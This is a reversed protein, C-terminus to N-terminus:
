IINGFIHLFIFNYHFLNFPSSRMDHKEVRLVICLKGRDGLCNLFFLTEIIWTISSDLLFKLMKGLLTQCAPTTLFRVVLRELLLNGAWGGSNCTYSYCHCGSQNEKVMFSKIDATLNINTPLVNWLYRAKTDQSYLTVGQKTVTAMSGTICNSDHGQIHGSLCQPWVM